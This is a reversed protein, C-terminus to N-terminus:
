PNQVTSIKTLPQDVQSVTTSSPPMIANDPESKLINQTQDSQSIETSFPGTIANDLVPKSIILAQDVQSVTTSYLGIVGSDTESMSIALAQDVQSVTTSFIGIVANDLGTNSIAQTQGAQSVETSLPGTIASDPESKLIAQTQGTQSAETSSPGTTANGPESKLIAQTQGTQSAETSSPGTIASDPESKLIAQTQGTQSAETSSPGTTASGPESKLIAQTQGTQSAETSSPGTTANGPESKLIAQTQGTQSAETSSPGTTANGPESKLIAQTQGTQSAETSSPGTTANGPESKLIAQTQGTQSAETPETIASDPKPESITPKKLTVDKSTSPEKVDYLCHDPQIGELVKSSRTLDNDPKPESITPKKLTVDKSTSPEKVDYLSHDPQAGQLVKSSRTLDNDSKSKSITTKKLQPSVDNSTSQEQNDPQQPVPVLDNRPPVTSSGNEMTVSQQSSIDDRVDDRVDFLSQISDSSRSPLVIARSRITLGRCSIESSGETDSSGYIEKMIVFEEKSCTKTAKALIQNKRSEQPQGFHFNQSLSIPPCCQSATHKWEKKSEEGKLGAELFPVFQRRNYYLYGAALALIFLALGFITACAILASTVHTLVDVSIPVTEAKASRKTRGVVSPGKFIHKFLYLLIPLSEETDLHKRVMLAKLPLIRFGKHAVSLYKKKIRKSPQMLYKLVKTIYVSAKAEDMESTFVENKVGVATKIAPFTPSILSPQVYYITSLVEIGNGGSKNEKANLWKALKILKKSRYMKIQFASEKIQQINPMVPERASFIKQKSASSRQYTFAHIFPFKENVNVSNKTRTKWKQLKINERIAFSTWRQFSSFQGYKEFEMYPSSWEGNLVKKGDTMRFQEKNYINTNEKSFVREKVSTFIRNSNNKSKKKQLVEAETLVKGRPIQPKVLKIVMSELGEQDKQFYAEEVNLMMNTQCAIYGLLSGAGIPKHRNEFYTIQLHAKRKTESKKRAGNLISHWNVKVEYGGCKRNLINRLIHRLYKRRRLILESRGLHKRSMHVSISGDTIPYPNRKYLIVYKLLMKHQYNRYANKRSTKLNTRFSSYNRIGRKQMSQDLIVNGSTKCSCNKAAPVSVQQYELVHGPWVEWLVLLHGLVPSGTVPVLVLLTAMLSRTSLM